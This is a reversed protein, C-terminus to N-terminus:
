ALAAEGVTNGIGSSGAAAGGVLARWSQVQGIQVTVFRELARWVGPRQGPPLPADM